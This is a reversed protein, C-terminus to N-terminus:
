PNVGVADECSAVWEGTETKLLTATDRFVENTVPGLVPRKRFKYVVTRAESRNGKDDTYSSDTVEDVELIDREDTCPPKRLHTLACNCTVHDFQDALFCGYLASRVIYALYILVGFVFLRGLVQVAKILTEREYPTM